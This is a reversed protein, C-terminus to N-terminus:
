MRARRRHAEIPSASRTLALRHRERDVMDGLRDEILREHIVLGLAGLTWIAVGGAFCLWRTVHPDAFVRSAVITWAGTLVLLVETTRAGGGQDPVAFASLAAIVAAAGLGLVIWAAM